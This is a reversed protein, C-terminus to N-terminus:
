GITKLLTCNQVRQDATEVPMYSSEVAMADTLPLVTIEDLYRHITAETTETSRLRGRNLLAGLEVITIASVALTSPSRARRIGAEAPRSLKGPEQELWVLVHTDPLIM